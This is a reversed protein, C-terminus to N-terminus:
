YLWLISYIELLYLCFSPPPFSVPVLLNSALSCSEVELSFIWLSLISAISSLFEDGLYNLFINEFLPRPNVPPFSWQIGLLVTLVSEGWPGDSYFSAGPSLSLKRYSKWFFFCTDFLPYFILMDDFM